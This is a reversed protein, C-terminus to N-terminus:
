SNNGQRKRYMKNIFSYLLMEQERPNGEFVRNVFMHILSQLYHWEKSFRDDLSQIRIIQSQKLSIYNDYIKIISKNLMFESDLYKENNITQFLYKEIRRFHLDIDKKKKKNM